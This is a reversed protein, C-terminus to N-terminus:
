TSTNRPPIHPMEGYINWYEAVFNEIDPFGYRRIVEASNTAAPKVRRLEARALKLRRLRLYRNATMGLQALCSARLTQESVGIASCIERSRMLLHSNEALVAELQVAVRAQRRRAAFDARTKGATLCTILAWILDQELARIVEKNSIRNLATEAIRGAQAHLRLLRRRDSTGPRLIQGNPPAVLNREAITRGFAMLATPPLSISGWHCAATTRQHLQEGQSHFLLDGFELRAGGSILLSGQKCPFTVFVQEPPLTVFAVRSSAEDARLLQLSPLDVWTLRAHFDRPRLVLLDLMDGLSAQYGDADTFISSGGAPM